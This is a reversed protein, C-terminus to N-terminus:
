VAVMEVLFQSSPIHPAAPFLYLYCPCQTAIATHIYGLMYRIKYVIQAQKLAIELAIPICGVRRQYPIGCESEVADCSTVAVTVATTVIGGCDGGGSTQRKKRHYHM